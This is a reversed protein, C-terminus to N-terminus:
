YLDGSFNGSFNTPCAHVIRCFAEVKAVDKIGPASEVGSAVDIAFPACSKKRLISLCENINDANLGGALLLPFGENLSKLKHWDGMAAKHMWDLVTVGSGKLPELLVAGAATPAVFQSSDLVQVQCTPVPLAARFLEDTPSHMQVYDLELQSLIVQVDTLSQDQFVGVWRANESLRVGDMIARAQEVTLVRPTGPVFILGLFDAGADSAHQADEISTLGCIKVRVSTM